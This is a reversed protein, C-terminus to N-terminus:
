INYLEMGKAANCGKIQFSTADELKWFIGPRHYFIAGGAVVENLNPFKKM